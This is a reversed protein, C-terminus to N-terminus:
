DIKRVKIERLRGLLLDRIQRGEGAGEVHELEAIMRLRLCDRDLCDGWDVFSLDQVQSLWDDFVARNGAMSHLFVRPNSLSFRCFYDSIELGALGDRQAWRKLYDELDARRFVVGERELGAAGQGVPQAGSGSAVAVLITIGLGIVKTM